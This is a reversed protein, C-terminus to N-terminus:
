DFEGNNMRRNTIEDILKQQEKLMTLADKALLDICRCAALGGRRNQEDLYSCGNDDCGDACLKLAAMVNERDM